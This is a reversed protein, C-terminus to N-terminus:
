YSTAQGPFHKEVYTRARAAAEDATFSPTANLTNDVALTKAAVAVVSAGKLHLSMEGATVPIGAHMQRYRVREMGLADPGTVREVRAWSPGAIGFARGHVALFAAARADAPDAASAAVRVPAGPTTSMFTVLGTLRSKAARIQAGAAAGMARVGADDAADSAQARVPSALGLCVALVVALTLAGRALVVSSAM